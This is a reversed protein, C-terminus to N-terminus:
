STDMPNSRENTKHIRKGVLCHNPNFIYKSLRQHTAKYPFFAVFAVAGILAYWFDM